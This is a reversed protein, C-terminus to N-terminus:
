ARCSTSCRSISRGSRSVRDELVKTRVKWLSAALQEREKATLVSFIRRDTENHLSQNFIELGKESLEVEVKSRGTGKLRVILDDKEMRKLLETVSHLERFLDRAIEM